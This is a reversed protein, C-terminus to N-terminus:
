AISKFMSVFAAGAIRTEDTRGIAADLLASRKAQQRLESPMANLVKEMMYAIFDSRDIQAVRHANFVEVNPATGFQSIAGMGEATVSNSKRVRGKNRRPFQIITGM